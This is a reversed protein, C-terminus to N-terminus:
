EPGGDNATGDVTGYRLVNMPRTWAEGDLPPITDMQM